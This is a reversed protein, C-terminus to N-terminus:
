PRVPVARLAVNDFFVEDQGAQHHVTLSAFGSAAEPPAEAYVALQIWEPYDGPLLPALNLFDPGIEEGEETFWRLEVEVRSGPSVRGKVDAQFLFRDGPQAEFQQYLAEKGAGRAAVSFKGRTATEDSLAMVSGKPDGGWRTWGFPTYASSFLDDGVHDALMEDMRFDGNVLVDSAEGRAMAKEIEVALAARSEPFTRTVAAILRGPIASNCEAESEPHLRTCTAAALGGVVADLKM